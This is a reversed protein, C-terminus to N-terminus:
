LDKLFYYADGKGPIHRIFFGRRDLVRRLKLNPEVCNTAYVIWEIRRLGRQKAFREALISLTPLIGEGGGNIQALEIVLAESELRLEGLIEATGAKFIIPRGTFVLSNIDQDSLALIEDPSYGEITIRRRETM